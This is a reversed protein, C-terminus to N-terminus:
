AWPKLGLSRRGKGKNKGGFTNSLADCNLCILRLNEPSNDSANGNIHDLWLPIPKDLWTTLTCCSCVNGNKEFLIKRLESRYTLEGNKFQDYREELKVKVRHKVSCQQSCCTKHGKKIQNPRRVFVVDCSLCKFYQEPKIRSSKIEILSRKINNYSASCSKSCFVNNPDFTKEARRTISVSYTIICDCQKCKLPNLNYDNQKKESRLQGNIVMAAVDLGSRPNLSHVRQHAGRSQATNFQKECKECQYVM